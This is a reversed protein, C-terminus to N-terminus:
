PPHPRQWTRPPLSGNGLEHGGATASGGSNGADSSSSAAHAEELAEMDQTLLSNNCGLTTKTLGRLEDLGILTVARAITNSKQCGAVAENGRPRTIDSYSGFGKIWMPSRHLMLIRAITGVPYNCTELESRILKTPISDHFAKRVGYPSSCRSTARPWSIM